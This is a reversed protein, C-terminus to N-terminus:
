FTVTAGMTWPRPAAPGLARPDSAGPAQSLAIADTSSFTGFTAYGADFLNSVAGFVTLRRGLTVSGHVAATMYAGTDPTLNAEDGFLTQGSAAQIDGGITWRETRYDASLTARHRPIGPM